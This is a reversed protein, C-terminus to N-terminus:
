AANTSEFIKDANAAIFGQYLNKEIDAHRLAFEYFCTPIEHTEGGAFEFAQRDAMTSGQELLDAPTGKVEGGVTNVAFGAEKVRRLVDQLTESSTLHNVSVTFHNVRVGIALLWAGYETEAMLTQYEEFSPMEWHRGSWFVSLDLEKAEIQQTYKGIIAQSEESLQDILLESVFIKPAKPDTHIFSYARLKKAEFNYSDQREYGLSLILPELNDLQLPTNAFTRFAVHDNIVEGDTKAFIQKILEAQPTISTYDRWLEAFFTETNM